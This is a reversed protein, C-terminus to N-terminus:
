MYLIKFSMMQGDAWLEFSDSSQDSYDFNCATVVCHTKM